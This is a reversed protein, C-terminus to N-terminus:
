IITTPIGEVKVYKKIFKQTHTFIRLDEKLIAMVIEGFAFNNFSRDSIFDCSQKTPEMADVCTGSWDAYRMNSCESIKFGVYGITYSRNKLSEMCDAINDNSKTDWSWLNWLRHGKKAYYFGEYNSASECWCKFEWGLERAQMIPEIDYNSGYDPVVTTIIVKNSQIYDEIWSDDLTKKATNPINRDYEIHLIENYEALFDKYPKRSKNDNITIM